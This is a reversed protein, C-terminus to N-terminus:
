PKKRNVGSEPAMSELPRPDTMTVLGLATLELFCMVVEDLPRDAVAAISAVTSVGDVHMFVFAAEHSLVSTDASKVRKPIASPVNTREFSLVGRSLAMGEYDPASTPRASPADMMTEPVVGPPPPSTTSSSSQASVVQSTVPVDTRPAPAKAAAEAEDKAGM